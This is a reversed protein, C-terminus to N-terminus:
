TCFVRSFNRVLGNRKKQLLSLPSQPLIRELPCRWMMTRYILKQELFHSGGHIPTHSRRHHFSSILAGRRRLPYSLHRFGIVVAAMLRVCDTSSTRMPVFAPVASPQVVVVVVVVVGAHRRHPSM